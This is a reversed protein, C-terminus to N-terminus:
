LLSSLRDNFVLLKCHNELFKIITINSKKNFIWGLPERTQMHLVSSNEGGILTEPTVYNQVVISQEDQITVEPLFFEVTSPLFREESHLWILPSWSRILQEVLYIFLCLSYVLFLCQNFVYFFPYQHLKM